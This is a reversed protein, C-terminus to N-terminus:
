LIVIVVLGEETQCKLMIWPQECGNGTKSSPTWLLLADREAARPCLWTSSQFAWRDNSGTDM